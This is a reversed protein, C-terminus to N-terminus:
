LRLTEHRCRARAARNQCFNWRKYRERDWNNGAENSTGKEANDVAHHEPREACNRERRRRQGLAHEDDEVRAEIPENAGYTNQCPMGVACAIRLADIANEPM